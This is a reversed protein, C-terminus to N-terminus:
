MFDNSFTGRARGSGIKINDESLKRRRVIGGYSNREEDNDDRDAMNELENKEDSDVSNSLRHLQGMDADDMLNNSFISSGSMKLKKRDNLEQELDLYIKVEKKLFPYAKIQVLSFLETKQLEELFGKRVQQTAGQGLAKQQEEKEEKTPDREMVAFAKPWFDLDVLRLLRLLIFRNSHPNQIMKNVVHVLRNAGLVSEILPKHNSALVLEITDFLSLVFRDNQHFRDVLAMLIDGLKSMSAMLYFNKHDIILCHHIMRMIELRFMGLISQERGGGCVASQPEPCQLIELLSEFHDMILQVLVGQEPKVQNELHLVLLLTKNLKNLMGPNKKPHGSYEKCNELFLKFLIEINDKDLFSSRLYEGLNQLDSDPKM